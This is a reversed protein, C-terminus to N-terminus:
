CIFVIMELTSLYCPRIITSFLSSYETDQSLAYHFLIQFLIYIYISYVCVCVCVCVCVYAIYCFSVCCKLDVISWYFVNKLFFKKCLRWWQIRGIMRICFCVSVNMSLISLVRDRPRCLGQRTQVSCNLATFFQLPNWFSLFHTVINRYFSSLLYAEM